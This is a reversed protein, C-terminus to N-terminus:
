AHSRESLQRKLSAVLRKLISLSHQLEALRDELEMKSQVLRDMEKKYSKLVDMCQVSCCTEQQSSPGAQEEAQGAMVDLKTDKQDFNSVMPPNSMSARLEALLQIAKLTRALSMVEARMEASLETHTQLVHRDLHHGPKYMCGPVPCPCTRINIHGTAWKVIIGRETLNQMKHVGKLHRSLNLYTNSCMPCCATLKESMRQKHNIIM